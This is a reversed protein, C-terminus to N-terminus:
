VGQEEEYWFMNAGLNVSATSVFKLVYKKTNDLVWELQQASQAGVKTNGPGSGGFIVEEHIKTYTSGSGDGTTVKFEATKGALRNRNYPTAEAGTSAVTSGEYISFTVALGDIAVNPMRFHAFKTPATTRNEFGVALTTNVASNISVEYADGDHIYSHDTDIQRVGDTFRDKWKDHMLAWISYM